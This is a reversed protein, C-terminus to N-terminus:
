SFFAHSKSFKIHHKGPILDENVIGLQLSLEGHLAAAASSCQADDDWEYKLAVDLADQMTRDSIEQNTYSM